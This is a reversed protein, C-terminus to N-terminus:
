NKDNINWVLYLGQRKLEDISKKDIDSLDGEYYYINEINEVKFAKNPVTITIEQDTKSLDNGTKSISLSIDNGEEKEEAKVIEGNNRKEKKDEIQNDKSIEGEINYTVDADVTEEIMQANQYDVMVGSNMINIFNNSKDKDKTMKTALTSSVNVYVDYKGNKNKEIISDARKYNDANINLNFENKTQRGVSILGKEYKMISEHAYIGQYGGGIVLLSALTITMAKYVTKKKMSKSFNKFANKEEKKNNAEKSVESMINFEANCKECNKLHTEIFKRSADSCVDDLYLPLLDRVIDCENNM